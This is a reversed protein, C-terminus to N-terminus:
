GAVGAKIESLIDRASPYRDAPDKELCRAIIGLILPPIDEKFERPDPPPTHVHHYPLNGERFPLTGTAMEFLTVGLSYIDSRADPPGPGDIAEPALYAPSGLLSGSLTLRAGAQEVDRALGFDLLVPQGNRRVIINGPKVDRHVLGASHAAHLARAVSEIVHLLARLAALDKAKGIQETLTAGEVYEMALFPVGDVEGTERVACIGPHELRAAIEREREFRRRAAASFELGAQLIKIAVLEKDDGRRALFVTGMAGGGISKLLRYDGIRTVQSPGRGTMGFSQLMAFRDTLRPALQQHRRCAEAVAQGWEAEPRELCAFLIDDIERDAEM